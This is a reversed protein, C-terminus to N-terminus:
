RHYSPVRAASPDMVGEGSLLAEADFGDGYASILWSRSAPDLSLDAGVAARENLREQGAQRPSMLPAPAGMYTAAAPARAAAEPAPLWSPEMDLSGQGGETFALAGFAASLEDYEADYDSERYMAARLARLGPPRLLTGL